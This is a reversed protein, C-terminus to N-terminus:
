TQSFLDGVGVSSTSVSASLPQASHSRGASKFISINVKNGFNFPEGKDRSIRKDADASLTRAKQAFSTGLKINLNHKETLLNEKYSTYVAEQDRDSRGRRGRELQTLPPLCTQWM